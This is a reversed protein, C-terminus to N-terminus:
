LGFLPRVSVDQDLTKSMAMSLPSQVLFESLFRGNPRQCFGPEQCKKWRGAKATVFMHMGPRNFTPM